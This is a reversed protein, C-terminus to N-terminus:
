RSQIHQNIGYHAASTDTNKSCQTWILVKQHENPIIQIIWSVAGGHYKCNEKLNKTSQNNFIRKYWYAQRHKRYPVM